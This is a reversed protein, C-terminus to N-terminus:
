TLQTSGRGGLSALDNPPRRRELRRAFSSATARFCDAPDAGPVRAQPRNPHDVTAADAAITSPWRISKRQVFCQRLRHDPKDEREHARQDGDRCGVFAM